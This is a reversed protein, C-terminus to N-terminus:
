TTWPRCDTCDCDVHRPMQVLTPRRPTMVHPPVRWLGTRARKSIGPRFIVVISDFIAPDPVHRGQALQKANWRPQGNEYFCIRKDCFLLESAGNEVIYSKFTETVRLPLLFVSTFGAHQMRVAYPVIQQVFPGYPPNSYGRLGYTTWNVALADVRGLPSDPGFWRPLCHRAGDATLDVDFPGFDAALKEYIAPPTEWCANAATPDPGTGSTFRDRAARNM